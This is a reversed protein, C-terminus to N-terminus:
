NGKGGPVRDVAGMVRDLQRTHTQIETHTDKIATANKEGQVVAAQAHGNAEGAKKEAGVGYYAAVASLLLIAGRFAYALFPQWDFPPRPTMDALQRRRAVADALTEDAKQQDEHATWLANVKDRLEEDTM